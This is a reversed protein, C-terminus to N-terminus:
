DGNISINKEGTLSKVALGAVGDFSTIKDRLTNELQEWLSDRSM